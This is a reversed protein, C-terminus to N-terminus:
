QRRAQTTAHSEAHKKSMFVSPPHVEVVGNCVNGCYSSKTPRMHNVKFGVEVEEGRYRALTARKPTVLPGMDVEANRDFRNDHGTYFPCKVGMEKMPDLKFNLVHHHNLNKNARHCRIDPYWDANLEGVAGARLRDPAKWEHAEKRQKIVEDRMAAFKPCSAAKRLVCKAREEEQQTRWTGRAADLFFMRRQFGLTGNDSRSTSAPSQCVDHLGGGRATEGCHSRSSLSYSAPATRPPLRTCPSAAM